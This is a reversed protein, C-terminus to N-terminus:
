CRLYDDLFLVWPRHKPEKMYSQVLKDIIKMCFNNQTGKIPYNGSFWDNAPVGEVLRM